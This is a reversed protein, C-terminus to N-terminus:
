RKGGFHVNGALLKGGFTGVKWNGVLVMEWWFRGGFHGYDRDGISTNREIGALMNMARMKPSSFMKIPFNLRSYAFFACLKYKGAM